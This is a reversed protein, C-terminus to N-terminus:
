KMKGIIYEAIRSNAGTEGLKNKIEAIDHKFKLYDVENNLYFASYHYIKGINVDDQILEPVINKGNVINALSIATIKVLRKGIEYNIKHTKYVVIFPLEHLAAELTSTGSKIIGFKSHKFLDYTLNKALTFNINPELERLRNEDINESCAVVTHLNYELSIKNAAEMVEPFIMEIEQKRSGPMVLLIEKDTSLNLKEYLEDKTLYNYNSIRDVLPHGFFHADIGHGNYFKVEFPLICIMEDIYKKVKEVRSEHWAWLQPSIYYFTRLGLKRASKAFNLNFGPYDIFIVNQINNKKIFDLLSNKVKRIYNLNKIVEVFGMFAFDKIHYLLNVGASQMNDGGIGYFEINSDKELVSKVLASGHLDGSVEGAIILFKNNGAM